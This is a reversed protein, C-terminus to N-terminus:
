MAMRSEEDNLVVLRAVVLDEKLSTIAKLVNERGGMKDVFERVALDYEETEQKRAGLSVRVFSKM